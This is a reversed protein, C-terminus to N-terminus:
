VGRKEKFIKGLLKYLLYMMHLIIVAFIAYAVLYGAQGFRTGFIKWLMILPSGESAENLFMYNTGAFSNFIYIPVACVMMAGCVQWVGKYFLRIERSRYQMVFYLVIWGHFLFSHINMFHFFPYCTWNCFLLAAVAGPVFAFAFMQGTIRRYKGFADILMGLMALSCLHLPLYDVIPAGIILIVADKYVESLLIAVAFFKKTKEKKDPILKKYYGSFIVITLTIAILWVIHGIGYLNFGIDLDLEEITDEHMFFYEFNM